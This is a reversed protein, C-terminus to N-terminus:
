DGIKTLEQTIRAKVRIGGFKGKEPIGRFSRKGEDNHNFRWKM